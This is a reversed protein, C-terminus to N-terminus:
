AIGEIVRLKASRALPNERIELFSSVIPKRTVWKARAAEVLKKFELKVIRDEGSHFSIILFRGGEKLLGIGGKIAGRLNEFEDNVLIRLALFVKTAPHLKGKKKKVREIVEALDKAARIKKLRRSRVIASAIAGAFEEQVLNTFVNSLENESLTNVLNAATKGSALPDVRMDLPGEDNFSFGRKFSKLQLSSIGLDLIIGDVPKFNHDEAIKKINGFNGKAIQWPGSSCAQGGIRLAEELRGKAIKIMEADRDIGLLEGGRKLIEIAHGASGLTGDIYKEGEKVQLLELVEKLLVPRHYKAM